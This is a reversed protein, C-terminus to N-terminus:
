QRARRYPADDTVSAAKRFPEPPEYRRDEQLLVDIERRRADAM